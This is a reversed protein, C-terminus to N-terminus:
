ASRSASAENLEAAEDCEAVEESEAEEDYVAEEDCEAEEGPEAGNSASDAICARLAPLVLVTIPVDDLRDNDTM